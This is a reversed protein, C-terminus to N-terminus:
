TQKLDKKKIELFRQICAGYPWITPNMAKEFNEESVKIKFSAYLEPHKSNLSECIVEPFQKKLHTELNSATTNPNIRYVHLAILKPVGKIDGLSNSNGTVIRRKRGLVKSWQEPERAVASQEKQDPANVINDETKKFETKELKTKTDNVANLVSNSVERKTFVHPKDAPKVIKPNERTKATDSTKHSNPAPALISQKIKSNSPM